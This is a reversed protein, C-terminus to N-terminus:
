FVGFRKAIQFPLIKSLLRESEKQIEFIQTANRELTKRALFSRRNAWDIQFIAICVELSLFILHLSDRISIFIAYARDVSGKEESFTAKAFASPYFILIFSTTQILTSTAFFMGNFGVFSAHLMSVAAACGVLFTSSAPSMLTELFLTQNQGPFVLFLEM